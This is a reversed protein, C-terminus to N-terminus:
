ISLYRRSFCFSLSFYLMAFTSLPAVCQKLTVGSDTTLLLGTENTTNCGILLHSTAPDLALICGAGRTNVQRLILLVHHLILYHLLCVLTWSEGGDNSLYLGAPSSFFIRMCRGTSTNYSRPDIVIAAGLLTAKPYHLTLTQKWSAARNNSIYLGNAVSVGESNGGLGIVNSDNVPDIAFSAGGRSNWGVMCVSWNRGGDLSRYIGGVDTGFIM